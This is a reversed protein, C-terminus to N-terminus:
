GNCLGPVRELRIGFQDRYAALAEADDPRRSRM